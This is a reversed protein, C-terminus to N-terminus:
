FSFNKCSFYIAPLGIIGFVNSSCFFSVNFIKFFLMFYTEIFIVFGLSVISPKLTSFSSTSLMRLDLVQDCWESLVWLRRETERDEFPPGRTWCGEWCSCDVWLRDPLPLSSRLSRSSRFKTMKKQLVSIFISYHNNILVKFHKSRPLCDWM